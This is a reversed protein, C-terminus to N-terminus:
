VPVLEYVKTTATNENYKNTGNPRNRIEDMHSWVVCSFHAQPVGYAGVCLAFYLLLPLFYFGLRSSRKVGPAVQMLILVFAVFGVACVLMGILINNIIVWIRLCTCNEKVIGYLLLGVFALVLINVGITMVDTSWQVITNGILLLIVDIVAVLICGM